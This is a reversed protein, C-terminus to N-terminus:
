IGLIITMALEILFMLFLPKVAKSLKPVTKFTCDDVDTYGEQALMIDACEIIGCKSCYFEGSSRQLDICGNWVWNHTYQGTIPIRSKSLKM